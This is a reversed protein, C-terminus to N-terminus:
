LSLSLSLSVFFSTSFSFYNKFFEMADKREEETEKQRERKGGKSERDWGESISEPINLTLARKSMLQLERFPLTCTMMAFLIVGCAWDDFAYTMEQDDPPSYLVTGGLVKVPSLSLSLSFSLFLFLSLYFSFSLFLKPCANAEGFSHWVELREGPKVIHSFGFDILKLRNDKERILINEPKLDGHIVQPFATLRL